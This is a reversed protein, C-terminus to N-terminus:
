NTLAPSEYDRPRPNSGRGGWKLPKKQRNNDTMWRKNMSITRDLLDAVEPRVQSHNVYRDQTLSVQAHGLQDAAIRASLGDDDIGLCM